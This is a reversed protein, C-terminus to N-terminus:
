ETAFLQERAAKLLALSRAGLNQPQIARNELIDCLNEFRDARLGLVSKSDASLEYYGEYPHPYNEWTAYRTLATFSRQALGHSGFTEREFNDLQKKTIVPVQQASNSTTAWTVLDPNYQPVAEETSPWAEITDPDVSIVDINHKAVVDGIAAWFEPIVAEPVSVRFERMREPSPNNSSM